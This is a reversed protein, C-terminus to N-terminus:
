HYNALKLMYSLTTTTTTTTTTTAIPATHCAKCWFEVDSLLDSKCVCGHM